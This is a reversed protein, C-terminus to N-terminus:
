LGGHGEPGKDPREGRPPAGHGPPQNGHEGPGGHPPAGPHGPPYGGPGHFGEPGHAAADRAAVVGHGSFDGARATAAIQPRGGNVSARLAPNAAAMQEHQRQVATFAVHQEHSAAIEAPSPRAVIGGAGGNFAVRNVPVENIVTRNVVYVGGNWYGGHFGAGGYGFGYNVGGYFGVHPGWYGANWVYAGGAWGWYGPTWLMGVPALVWTGPVWYYGAEGWSWYGPTWVYGPGPVEPQVYVPLVPPAINVSVFVGADSALPLAALLLAVAFGSIVKRM